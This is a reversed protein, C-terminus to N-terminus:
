LLVVPSFPVPSPSPRSIAEITHLPSIDTTYWQGVVVNSVIGDYNSGGNDAADATWSYYNDGGHWGLLTDYQGHGGFGANDGLGIDFIKSWAVSNGQATSKAVVEISWGKSGDVSSGLSTGTGFLVKAGLPTSVGNADTAAATLNISPGLTTTDHSAGVFQAVGAHYQASPCSAENIGQTAWGYVAGTSRPDTSFNLAYFPAPVTVTSLAASCSLVPSCVDQATALSLLAFFAALYTAARM